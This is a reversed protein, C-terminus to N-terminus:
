AASIAAPILSEGHLLGTRLLEAFEHQTCTWSHNREYRRRGMTPHFVDFDVYGHSNADAKASVVVQLSVGPGHLLDGHKFYYARGQTWLWRKRKGNETKVMRPTLRIDLAARFAPRVTFIWGKAPGSSFDASLQISRITRAM